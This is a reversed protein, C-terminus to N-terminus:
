TMWFQNPFFNDCRRGIAVLAANAWPVLATPEHMIDLLDYIEHLFIFIHMKYPNIPPTTLKIWEHIHHKSFTSIKAIMSHWRRSRQVSKLLIRRLEAYAYRNFINLFDYWTIGVFQLCDSRRLHKRRSIHIATETRSFKTRCILSATLPPRDAKKRDNMYGEHSAESSSRRLSWREYLTMMYPTRTRTWVECKILCNWLPGM